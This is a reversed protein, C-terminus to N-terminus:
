HTDQIVIPVHLPLVNLANVQALLANIQQNILDSDMLVYTSFPVSDMLWHIDVLVFLAYQVLAHKVISLASEAYVM